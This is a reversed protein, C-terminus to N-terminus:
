FDFYSTDGFLQGYRKPSSAAWSILSTDLKIYRPQRCAKTIRSQM